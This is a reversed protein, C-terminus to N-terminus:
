QVVHVGEHKAVFKQLLPDKIGEEIIVNGGEDITGYAKVGTNSELNRKFIKM